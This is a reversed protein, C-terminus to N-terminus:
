KVIEWSGDPGRCATGYTKQRQGAIVADSTYERCYRGNGAAYSRTPTVWYADQNQGQWAVTQRDPVHELAEGACSQDLQDMNQGITGGVFLGALVGGVTAVTRGKGKGLNSGILGGAAGGLAAGILDRNCVRQDLGYPAPPPAYVPQPATYVVPPPPPPAAYIVPPASYYVPEDEDDDHHHRWQRRDEDDRDHKDRWGHAPAWPPPDALAPAAHWSSVALGVALLVAPLLRLQSATM